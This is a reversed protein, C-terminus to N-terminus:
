ILCIGFKYDCLGYFIIYIIVFKNFLIKKISFFKNWSFPLDSKMFLLFNVYYINIFKEIKLFYIKLNIFNLKNTDDFYDLFLFFKNM